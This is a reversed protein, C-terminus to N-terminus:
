EAVMKAQISKSTANGFNGSYNYGLLFELNINCQGTQPVRGRLSNFKISSVVSDGPKIETARFFGEYQIPEAELGTVQQSSAGYQNGSADTVNGTLTGRMDTRIAVWVSKTSSLNTLSMSLYYASGDVIRLSEMDVRVNDITKVVVPKPKESVSGNVGAEIAPKTVLRQVTEDSKFEARAAGVIEATDTSIIKATLSVTNSKPIITGLIIADVGAFQGLKKANEPDVLGTATLKHEALISKLNARDLVSFERKELVFNVTLQEAIYRGLEGQPTGQLDTFDLVTVKKKAKATIPAALKEALTVLEKDIDQTQAFAPVCM